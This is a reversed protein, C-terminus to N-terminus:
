VGFRHRTAKYNQTIESATLARNYFKVISKKNSVFECCHGKGILVNTCSLNKTTSSSMSGIYKDNYYAKHLSGSRTLSIYQWVDFAVNWSGFDNLYSRYSSGGYFYISRGYNSSGAKLAFNDQSDFSLFHIYSHSGVSSMYFWLSITYEGTGINFDGNTNPITVYDNTADSVISGKDDADFTPGNTLAGDNAGALDSWTTGSKPYSRPNAADLCLVLGDRVILPSHSLSM